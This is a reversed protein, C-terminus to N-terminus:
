QPRDPHHRFAKTKKRARLQNRQNATLLDRLDLLFNVYAVSLDIKMRCIEKVQLAMEERDPHLSKLGTAFCLEKIKIKASHSIAYEEFDLMLNEVADEQKRSLGITEKHGLIFRAPYLDLDSLMSRNVYAQLRPLHHSPVAAQTSVALLLALAMASVIRGVNPRM